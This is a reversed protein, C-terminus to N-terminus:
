FTVIFLKRSTSPTSSGKQTPTRNGAKSYTEKDLPSYRYCRIKVFINLECCKAFITFFSKYLLFNSSLPPYNSYHLTWRVDSGSALPPFTFLKEEGRFYFTSIIQIHNGRETHSSSITFSSLDFCGEM